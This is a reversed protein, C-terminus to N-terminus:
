PYLTLLAPGEGLWLLPWLREGAFTAPPFSFIETQSDTDCFAVWGGAYDLAVEIHRLTHNHPLSVSSPWTLAQLQGLWQGMAWVGREPSLGFCGKHSVLERAVLLAWDPGPRVEVAWCHQGGVFGQWGLVCYLSEFREMGSPLPAPPSERRGATLWRSVGPNAPSSHSSGPDRNSAPLPINMPSRLLDGDLQQCKAQLEACCQRIWTMEDAEGRQQEELRWCLRHLWSLFRSEQDSLVRHLGKLMAQLKQKEASVRTQPTFSLSSSPREPLPLTDSVPIWAGQVLSCGRRAARRPRRSARRLRHLRPSWRPSLPSHPTAPAHPVAGAGAAPGAGARGGGVDALQRIPCRWVCRRCFNHGLSLITVPDQFFGLCVACTTEEQL